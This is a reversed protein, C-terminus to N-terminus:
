LNIFQASVFVVINPLSMNIGTLKSQLYGMETLPADSAFKQYGDKRPPVKRPMNLDFQHYKGNADFARRM